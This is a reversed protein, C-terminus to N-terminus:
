CRMQASPKRRRESMNSVILTHHYTGPAKLLLQRLLPHTPRSIELLQVPTTIGFLADILYLGILIVTATIM